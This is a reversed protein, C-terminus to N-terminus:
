RDDPYTASVGIPLESTGGLRHGEHAARQGGTSAASTSGAGSAASASAGSVNGSTIGLDKQIRKLNEEKEQQAKTKREQVKSQLEPLYVEDFEQAAEGIQIEVLLRHLITSVFLSLVVEASVVYQLWYIM